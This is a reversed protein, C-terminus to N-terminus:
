VMKQSQATDLLRKSWSNQRLFAIKHKPNDMRTSREQLQKAAKGIIANPDESPKNERMLARAYIYYYIPANPDFSTITHGRVISRLTGIAEDAKGCGILADAALVQTLLLPAPPRSGDRGIAIDEILSFGHSFIPPTRFTGSQNQWAQEAKHLVTYAKKYKRQFLLAEGLFLQCEPTPEYQSLLRAALDPKAMYSFCRTAWNTFIRLAESNSHSRAISRALTFSQHATRYNGLEFFIRSRLFLMWLQQRQEGRNTNDTLRPHIIELARSYNGYLFQATALLLATHTHLWATGLPATLDAAIQLYDLAEWISGQTIRTLGIITNAEAMGERMHADQYALIAGKALQLALNWEEKYQHIRARALLVHGKEGPHVRNSDISRLHHNLLRQIDSPRNQLLALDVRRSWIVAKMRRVLEPKRVIGVYSHVENLVQRLEDGRQSWSLQQTVTAYWKVALEPSVFRVAARLLEPQMTIHKQEICQQIYFATQDSINRRQDATLPMHVDPPIHDIVPQLVTETPLLGLCALRHCVEPLIVPPIGIQQLLDMVRQYPLTNQILQLAYLATHSQTDCHASIDKLGGPLTSWYRQSASSGDSDLTPSCSTYRVAPLCDPSAPSIIIPIGSGRQLQLTCLKTLIDREVAQELTHAFFVTILPQGHQEATQMGAEILPIFRMNLSHLQDEAFVLPAASETARSHTAAQAQQHLLRPELKEYLPDQGQTRLSSDLTSLYPSTSRLEFLTCCFPFASKLLTRCAECVTAFLDLPNDHRIWRAAPIFDRSYYEHLSESLSNLISSEISFQPYGRDDTDSSTANEVLAIDGELPAVQYIHELSHHADKSVWLAEDRSSTLLINRMNRAIAVTDGSTDLHVLMSFGMLDSSYHKLLQYCNYVTGAMKEIDATRRSNFRYLFQGTQIHPVPTGASDMKTRINRTLEAPIEPSVKMLQRFSHIEILTYFM